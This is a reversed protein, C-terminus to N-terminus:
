NSISVTKRSTIGFYRDLESTLFQDNSGAFTKGHSSNPLTVVNQSKCEVEFDSTKNEEPAMKLDDTTEDVSSLALTKHGPSFEVTNFAGSDPDKLIPYVDSNQDKLGLCVDSDEPVAGQVEEATPPTETSSDFSISAIRDM